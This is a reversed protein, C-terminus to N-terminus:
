DGLRRVEMFLDIGLREAGFRVEAGALGAKEVLRRLEAEDRYTLYWNAFWEMYGRTPNHPAFQFVVMRGGPALGEYFCRLMSVAADNDLYDFLGPCVLLDTAALAEAERREPLRFVNTSIATLQEAPLLGALRVHALEIAAPDLDILTVAVRRRAEENLRVLAERVELGLASGVMAIRVASQGARVVEGIWETAMRMRNRVAQPAAQDQFYRDFLRGLRDECLQGSYIRALLEHDGAYGRPKTRAWNQLWGRELLHGAANWIESSLLRNEVGGLNLEGLQALCEDMATAVQRYAAEDGSAPEVPLELGRLRALLEAAIAAIPQHQKEGSM